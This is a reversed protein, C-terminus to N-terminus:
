ENRQHKAVVLLADDWQIHVNTNTGAISYTYIYQIIISPRINIRRVHTTIKKHIPQRHEAVVKLRATHVYTLKNMKQIHFVDIKIRKWM